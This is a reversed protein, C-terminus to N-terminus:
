LFDRRRAVTLQPLAIALAIVLAEVLLVNLVTGNWVPADADLHGRIGPLAGVVFMFISVSMNTLIIAATMAGESRAHLAACLVVAFNALLYGCLVLVFPLMGDPVAPSALVLAVASLTAALWPLAFCLLLGLTKALVYQPISVPLSLIFQLSQEKRENAVGYIALMVGGAIVATIWAISGISFAVGGFACALASLATALATALMMWRHVHLEKAILGTLISNM